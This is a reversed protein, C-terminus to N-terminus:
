DRDSVITLRVGHGTLIWNNVILKAAQEADITKTTPIIKVLKTLRCTIVMISDFNNSDKEMDAFDIAISEFRGEPIPLPNLSGYKSQNRAKSKQCLRCREIYNKLDNFMNPWYSKSVMGRYTKLLGLHGKSARDHNEKIFDEQLHKPIVIRNKYLWLKIKPDYYFHKWIIKINKPMPTSGIKYETLKLCFEDELQHSFIPNAETNVRIRVLANISISKPNSITKSKGSGDHLEYNCKPCNLHLYEPKRSLLDALFHFKGPVYEILPMFDQLYEMWRTQRTSIEPQTQLKELSAHDVRAIFDIGHLLSRHKKIFTVLALLEKEHIPYNREASTM